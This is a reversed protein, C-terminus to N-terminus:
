KGKLIAESLLEILEQQEGDTEQADPLTQM